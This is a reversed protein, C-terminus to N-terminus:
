FSVALEVRYNRPYQYQWSNRSLEDIRYHVGEQPKEVLVDFPALAVVDVAPDAGLYTNQNLANVCELVLKVETKRWKRSTYVAVDTGSADHRRGSGLYYWIRTPPNNYGLAEPDPLGFEEYRGDIQWEGWTPSPSGSQFFFLLDCGVRIKRLDKEYHTMFVLKHRRDGSLYRDPSRGEHDNFEPYMTQPGELAAGGYEEGEINGVLRSWTHNLEVQVGRFMTRFSSLIGTYERFYESCNKIEAVDVVSGGWLTIDGTTRDLYLSPFRGYDRRVFDVSISSPGFKKRFGGSWEKSRPAGLSSGVVVSKGPVSAVYAAGGAAELIEEPDDDPYVGFIDFFWDALESLDETQPGFYYWGFAAPRGALSVADLIQSWRSTYQAYGFHLGLRENANWTVRLRPDLASSSAVTAGDQTKARNHTWRVGGQVEWNALILRDSCYASCTAFRSGQSPELVPYFRLESELDPFFIPIAESTVSGSDEWRTWSNFLVWDSASQHNDDRNREEFWEVGGEIRHDGWSSPFDWWELDIRANSNGRKPGHEASFFPAGINVESQDMAIVPSGEIFSADRGGADRMEYDQHSVRAEVNVPGLLGQYTGFVAFQPVTSKPIIASDNLITTNAFNKSTTQNWFVGAMLRHQNSILAEAKVEMSGEEMVSEFARAEPAWQNSELGLRRAIGNPIARGKPVFSDRKNKELSTALSFWVRDKVIPGNVILADKHNLDSPPRDQEGVQRARWSPDTLRTRFVGELSRGGSQTACLVLGGNFNGYKAPIAAHLVTIASLADEVFREDFWGSIVDNSYVGDVLLASEHGQAGVISVSAGGFPNLSVGPALVPVLWSSRITPQNELFGGDFTTGAGPLEKELATMGTVTMSEIAEPMMMLDVFASELLGLKIRSTETAFDPKSATLTYEDPELFPILFRGNKGSTADWPTGKNKGVVRILVNELPRSNGDMVIGSVSGHNQAIGPIMSVLLCMVWALNTKKM